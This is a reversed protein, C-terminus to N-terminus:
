VIKKTPPTYHNNKFHCRNAAVSMYSAMKPAIFGTIVM